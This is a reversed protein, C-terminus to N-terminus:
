MGRAKKIGGVGVGEEGSVRKVLRGGGGGGRGRTREKGGEWGGRWYRVKGPSVSLSDSRWFVELPCILVPLKEVRASVILPHRQATLSFYHTTFIPIAKKKGSVNRKKNKHRFFFTRIIRSFFFLSFLLLYTMLSILRRSHFLYPFLSVRFCPLAPLLFGTKTLPRPRPRYKM